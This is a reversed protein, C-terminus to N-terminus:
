RILNTQSAREWLSLSLSLDQARENGLDNTEVWNVKGAEAQRIRRRYVNALDPMLKVQKCATTDVQKLAPHRKVRGRGWESFILCFPLPLPLFLSLSKVILFFVFCFPCSDQVCVCVSRDFEFSLNIQATFWCLFLFLSLSPPLSLSLAIFCTELAASSQRGRRACVSYLFVSKEVAQTNSFSCFFIFLSYYYLFRTKKKQKAEEEEEESSQARKKTHSSAAAAAVVTPAEFVQGPRAEDRWSSKTKPGAQTTHKHTHTHM